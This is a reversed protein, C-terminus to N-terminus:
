QGRLITRFFRESPKVLSCIKTGLMRQLWDRGINDLKVGCHFRALLLESILTSTNRFDTSGRKM